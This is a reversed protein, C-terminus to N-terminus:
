GRGWLPSVDVTQIKTRFWVTVVIRLVQDLWDKPNMEMTKM